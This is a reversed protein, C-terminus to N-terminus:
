GNIVDKIIDYILNAGRKMLLIDTGVIIREFEYARKPLLRHLDSPLSRKALGPPLTGNRKLQKELGPPLKEKKALGPPLGKKSKKHKGKKASRSADDTYFDAIIRKEIESFLINALDKNSSAASTTQVCGATVFLLASLLVILIPNKKM